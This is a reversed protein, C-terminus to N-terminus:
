DQFTFGALSRDLRNAWALLREDQWWGGVLQVGLPLDERNRGAPLGLCPLGAQSWPLNMAPDGTSELGPPASGLASPALWCDIQEAQMLAIMSQRLAFQGSKALDYDADTIRLGQEILEATRPHYLGAYERYWNAHFAGAEKALIVQNRDRIAQLDDFVPVDKMVIGAHGIHRVAQSFHARGEPSLQELYPGVPIGFVPRDVEPSPTWNNCLVAAAQTIQVLYMSFWGVHDLSPSLPIVGERSVRDYSPKFGIAGCFAAPRIISGITQTGLALECLGAAVGAASGSSSGGPTHLPNNPNHTPGPGFYAFETTVTKGIILAGASRLLTVAEAQPGALLHAPLRSGARTTFEAVHFIDKVGVLLGFMAPRNRSDPYQELLALAERRLRQIRQEEPVFALVHAERTEFQAELRDLKDILETM